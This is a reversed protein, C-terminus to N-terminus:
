CIDRIKLDSNDSQMQCGRLASPMSTFLLLYHFNLSSPELSLWPKSPHPRVILNAAQASNQHKCTMESLINSICSHASLWDSSLLVFKLPWVPWGWKVWPFVIFFRINHWGTFLVLLNNSNLFLYVSQSQNINFISHLLESMINDQLIFNTPFFVLMSWSNGKALLFYSTLLKLLYSYFKTKCYKM